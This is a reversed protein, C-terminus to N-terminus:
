KAAKRRPIRPRTKWGLYICNASKLDSPKLDSEVPACGKDSTSEFAIPWGTRWGNDTPFQVDRWAASLFRVFLKDEDPNGGISLHERWYRFVFEIFSRTLPDHNGPQGAPRYHDQFKKIAEAVTSLAVLLKEISKERRIEKFRGLTEGSIEFNV